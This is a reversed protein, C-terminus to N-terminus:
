TWHIPLYESLAVFVRSLFQFGLYVTGGIVGIDKCTDAISKVVPRVRVALGSVTMRSVKRKYGPMLCAKGHRLDVNRLVLSQPGIM